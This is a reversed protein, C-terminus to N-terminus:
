IRGLGLYQSKTLRLLAPQCGISEIWKPSSWAPKSFALLLILFAIFRHFNSFVLRTFKLHLLSGFLECDWIAFLNCVCEKKGKSVCDWYSPLLLGESCSNDGSPIPRLQILNSLRPLSKLIAPSHDGLEKHLLTKTALTIPNVMELEFM